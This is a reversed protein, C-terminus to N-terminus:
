HNMLCVGNLIQCQVARRVLRDWQQMSISHSESKVDGSLYECDVTFLEDGPQVLKAEGSFGAGPEYMYMNGDQDFKFYQVPESSCMRCLFKVSTSTFDFVFIM